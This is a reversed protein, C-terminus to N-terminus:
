GGEGSGVDGSGLEGSGVERPDRWGAEWCTSVCCESEPFDGCWGGMCHHDWEWRAQTGAPCFKTGGTSTDGESRWGESSNGHYWCTWFEPGPRPPPRPAADPPYPPPLPAPPSPEPPMPPPSPSCAGLGSWEVGYLSDFAANGSWACRILLKNADSM